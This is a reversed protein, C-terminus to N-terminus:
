NDDDGRKRKGKGPRQDYNVVEEVLHLADANSYVPPLDCEGALALRVAHAEGFFRKSVEFPGWPNTMTEKLEQFIERLKVDDFIDYSQGFKPSHLINKSKAQAVGIRVLM